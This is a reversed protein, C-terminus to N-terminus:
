NADPPITGHYGSIVVEFRSRRNVNARLEFGWLEGLFDRVISEATHKELPSAGDLHDQAADQLEKARKLIGNDSM